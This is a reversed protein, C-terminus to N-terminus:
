NLVEYIYRYSFVGKVINSAALDPDADSLIVWGGLEMQFLIMGAKMSIAIGM